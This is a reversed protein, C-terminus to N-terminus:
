PNAAAAAELESRLRANQESVRQVMEQLDTIVKEVGKVAESTKGGYMEGIEKQTYVPAGFMRATQAYAQNAQEVQDQRQMRTKPDYTNMYWKQAETPQIAGAMGGAKEREWQALKDDRRGSEIEIRRRLDSEQQGGIGLQQNRLSLYERNAQSAKEKQKAAEAYERGPQGPLLFPNWEANTGRLQAAAERQEAAAQRGRAEAAASGLDGFRGSQSRGRSEIEGLEIQRRREREEPRMAADTRAASGSAAIGTLTERLRDENQRLREGHEAMKKQQDAVRALAAHYQNWAVTGVAVVGTVGGVVMGLTGFEGAFKAVGAAGKALSVAGEIKVLNELLKRTDEEGSTGLLSLGRTLQLVGHGAHALSMASVRGFEEHVRGTEKITRQQEKAAKTQKEFAAEYRQNAREFEAANPMELREKKLRLELEIIAKRIVESM